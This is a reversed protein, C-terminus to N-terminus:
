YFVSIPIVEELRAKWWCWVSPYQWVSCILLMLPVHILQAAETAWNTLADCHITTPQLGVRPLYYFNSQALQTVKGQRELCRMSSQLRTGEYFDHYARTVYIYVLAIWSVRFDPCRLLWSVKIILVGPCRLLWSVEIILVGWYNPCRLLWSVEKQGLPSIGAWGVWRYWM